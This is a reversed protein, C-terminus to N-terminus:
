LCHWWKHMSTASFVCRTHLPPCLRSTASFVCVLTHLPPCLSPRPHTSPPLFFTHTRALPTPSCTLAVYFTGSESLVRIRKTEGRGGGRHKRWVSIFLTDRLLGGVGERGLSLRTCTDRRANTLDSAHVRSLQDAALVWSRRMGVLNSAACLRECGPICIEGCALCAAVRGRTFSTACWDM